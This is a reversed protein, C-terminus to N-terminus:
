AFLDKKVQTRQADRLELRRLKEKLLRYQQARISLKYLILNRKTHEVLIARIDKAFKTQHRTVSHRGDPRENEIIDAPEIEKPKIPAPKAM